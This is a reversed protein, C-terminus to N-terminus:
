KMLPLERQVNVAECESVRTFVAKSGSAMVLGATRIHKNNLTLIIGNVEETQLQSCRLEESCGRLLELALCPSKEEEPGNAVKM